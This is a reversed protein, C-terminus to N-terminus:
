CVAAQLRSSKNVIGYRTPNNTEVCLRRFAAPLILTAMVVIALLKLM